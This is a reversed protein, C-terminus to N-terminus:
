ASQLPGRAALRRGVYGAIQLASAQEVTTLHETAAPDASTAPSSDAAPTPAPFPLVRAGRIRRGDAVVINRSSDHPM